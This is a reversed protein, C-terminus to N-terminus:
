RKERNFVYHVDSRAKGSLDKPRTNWNGSNYCITLTDGNLSYVASLRSPPAKPTPHYWMDLHKPTAKPDLSFQWFYKGSNDVLTLATGSFIYRQTGTQQRVGSFRREVLVWTGQIRRQDSGAPKPFPVPAFGLSSAAVLLLLLRRM